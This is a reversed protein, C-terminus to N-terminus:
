MLLFVVISVSLGEPLTLVLDQNKKFLTESSSLFPSSYRWSSLSWGGFCEALNASSQSVCFVKRSLDALLCLYRTGSVCILPDSYLAQFLSVCAHVISKQCLHLPMWYLLSVTELFPASATPHGCTVFIFGSKLRACWLINVCFYILFKCPFHLVLNLLFIRVM